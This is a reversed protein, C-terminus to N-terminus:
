SCKNCPKYYLTKNNPDLGSGNCRDCVLETESVVVGHILLQENEVLWNDFNFKENFDFKETWSNQYKRGAKFALKLKDIDM